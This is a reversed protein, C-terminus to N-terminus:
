GAVEAEALAGSRLDPPLGAGAETRPTYVQGQDLLLAPLVVTRAPQDSSVTGDLRDIAMRAGRHGLRDPGSAIVVLPPAVLLDTDVVEDFVAVDLATGAHQMARVTGRGTMHQAAFVATPPDALALLDHVVRQAGAADLCDLEALAPDYPVGAAALAQRYGDFRRQLTWLRSDNGLAAIRRHGRALLREVAQEAGLANDVVVTDVEVGDLPRDLSVVALGHEIEPALYEAAGPAPVLILADVRREVLTRVIQRQRDPDDHHSATMLHLGRPALVSEVAGVLAAIFPDAVSSIVLGVAASPGGAALSRALHNPRFGLARAAERVRAATSEAVGYEGNVARSATKLSVGARRAVDALTPRGSM